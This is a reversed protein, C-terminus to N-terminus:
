NFWFAFGIFNGQFVRQLQAWTEPTSLPGKELYPTAATGQIWLVLDFTRPETFVKRLNVGMGGADRWFPILKKGALIGEMEALFLGWSDVMEQTIKVQLVGTQKPNPIWEHDDDTEALVRKWMERSMAMCQELHALAARMRMPEKLPLHLLHIFSIVDAILTWDSWVPQPGEAHRPKNLFAHPTEINPFFLHGTREFLEQGDHALAAEGFFMLLHLYGRLWSVDGQDFVILFDDMERDLLRMEQLMKGLPISNAKDQGLPLLIRSMRLPLKVQPDKVGALTAEAKALDDVWQQLIQRLGAYSLRKADPNPPLFHEFVIFERAIRHTPTGLGHQHLRNMLGHIAQITQLVGLGFRHQDNNPEKQLSAQLAKHGAEYDGSELYSSVLPPPAAAPPAQRPASNAATCLGVILLLSLLLCIRGLPKM